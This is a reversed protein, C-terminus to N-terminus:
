SRLLGEWHWPSPLFHLQPSLKLALLVSPPNKVEGNYLHPCQPMPSTVQEPDCLLGMYSEDAPGIDWCPAREDAGAVVAPAHINM